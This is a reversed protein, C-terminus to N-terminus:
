VNTTGLGVEATSTSSSGLCTRTRPKSPANRIPVDEEISTFVATTDDGFVLTANGQQEIAVGIYSLMVFLGNLTLPVTEAIRDMAKCEKKCLANSKEESVNAAAGAQCAAWAKRHAEIRAFIPDRPMQDRSIALDRGDRISGLSRAVHKMIALPFEEAGDLDAGEEVYVSYEPFECNVRLRDGVYSLLAEAGASSKPAIKLLQYALDFM